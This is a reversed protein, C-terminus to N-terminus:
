SAIRIGDGNRDGKGFYCFAGKCARYTRGLSFAIVQWPYGERRMRFLIEKDENSWRIGDREAGRKTLANIRRERGAERLGKRERYGPDKYYERSIERYYAKRCEEKGCRGQRYNHAKYHDGCYPCTGELIRGKEQNKKQYFMVSCSKCLGRAWITRKRGCHICHGIGRGKPGPRRRLFLGRPMESKVLSLLDSM